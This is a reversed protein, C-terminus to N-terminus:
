DWDGIRADWLRNVRRQLDALSGDNHIVVDAIEELEADSVQNVIRAQAEEESMARNTALRDIRAAMPAEVVIVLDGHAALPSNGALLPIDHVLVGHPDERMVEEARKAALDRIRPHTLANLAELDGADSFVQAALEMRNLTGDDNLVRTGWRETIELLAPSNPVVIERALADYDLVHAGRDAFIRAVSSKGTGIGGTLVIQYM